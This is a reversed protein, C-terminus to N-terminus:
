PLCKGTEAKRKRSRRNVMHKRTELEDPHNQNRGNWEADVIQDLRHIVHLASRHGPSLKGVVRTKVASPM